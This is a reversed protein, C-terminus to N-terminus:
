RGDRGGRRAAAPGRGHPARRRTQPSPPPTLPPQVPLHPARSSPRSRRALSVLGFLLAFVPGGARFVLRSSPPCRTNWTHLALPLIPVAAGLVVSPCARLSCHIM